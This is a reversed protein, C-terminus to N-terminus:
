PCGPFEIVKVTYIQPNLNNDLDFIIHITIMSTCTDSKNLKKYEPIILYTNNRLIKLYKLTIMYHATNDKIYIAPGNSGYNSSYVHLVYNLADELSINYKKLIPLVESDKLLISLKEKNALFLMGKNLFSKAQQSESEKMTIPEIIEIIDLDKNILAEVHISDITSLLIELEIKFLENNVRSINKLYLENNMLDEITLNNKKLFSQFETTTLLKYLFHDKEEIIKQKMDNETLTEVYLSNNQSGQIAGYYPAVYTVLYAVIIVLFIIM